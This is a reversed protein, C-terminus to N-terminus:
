QETSGPDVALPAPSPYQGAQVARVKGEARSFIIRTQRTPKKIKRAADVARSWYQESLEIWGLRYYVDGAHDFIEPDDPNIELDDDDATGLALQALLQNFVFGAEGIRGQKYYVWGLSDEFAHSGPRSAAALRIMQEARALNLGRDAYMYGLNNALLPDSPSLKYALELAAMAEEPKGLESLIISKLSILETNEPSEALYQETKALAENYRGQQALTRILFELLVRKIRGPTKAVILQTTPQTTPATAPQSAPSTSPQTAPATAPKMEALEALWETLLPEVLELQDADSLGVLVSARALIDMPEQAAWQRCYDIAQQYRGQEIMLAVELSQMRALLATDRGPWDALAAQAQAFLEQEALSGILAEIPVSSDTDTQAWNRAYQTAQDVKGDLVLANIRQVKLPILQSESQTEAILEDLLRVTRAYQAAQQSFKVGQLKLVLRDKGDALSAWKASLDAAATPKDLKELLRLSIARAWRDTPRDALMQEVIPLAQAHQNAKSLAVVYVRAFSGHGPQRRYLDGLLEIAEDDKGALMFLRAKIEVPKINTPDAQSIQDLRKIARDFQDRSPLRRKLDLEGTLALLQVDIADPDAQALRDIIKNAQDFRGLHQYAEALMILGAQSDPRQNLLKTAIAHASNFDGALVTLDFLRRYLQPDDGQNRLGELLGQMAQRVQGASAQAEALLLLTQSDNPNLQQAKTLATVAQDVRGRALHVQGELSYTSASAPAIAEIKALLSEAEEFNRQSLEFDILAEYAPVFHSDNAISRNFHDAAQASDHRALAIQAMVYHIGQFDPQEFQSIQAIAVSLDFDKDAAIVAASAPVMRSTEPTSAIIRGLVIIFENARGAQQSKEALLKSMAPLQDYQASEGALEELLEMAEDIRGAKVYAEILGRAAGQSTRDRKYARNLMKAAEDPRGLLLLLQGRQIYLHQPRRLLQQLVPDDAISRDGSALINALSDYCQSSAVWNGKAKLQDALGLLARARLTDNKPAQSCKLATRFALVAEANLGQEGALEGLAVQLELDDPQAKAAAALNEIAGAKDNTALKLFGWLRNLRPDSFDRGAAQRLLRMASEYQGQDARQQAIELSKGVIEDLQALPPNSPPDIPPELEDLRLLAQPDIPQQTIDAPAQLQNQGTSVAPRSQPNQSCSCSLAVATVLLVLVSRFPQRM